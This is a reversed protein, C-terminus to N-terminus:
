GLGWVWGLGLGVRVRMWVGVRLGLCVEVKRGGGAEFWVM